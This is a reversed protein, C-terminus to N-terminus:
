KVVETLVSGISGSPMQISLMASVTPAIDTMYVERYTKGSSINWGFFILPIHTDYPYWTAHEAGSWDVDQYQPKLMFQIDGNRTRFYGKAYMEKIKAPLVLKDFQLYDFAHMVEPKALLFNLVSIKIAEKNLKLSDLLPYDFYVQYNYIKKVISDAKFQQKLMKNMEPIMLKANLNGGPLKNEQMFGPVNSSGHDATLFLLYNGKGVQADLMNLFKEIEKDLRLYCDEVEMSNPGFRHAIYDTSSLSICLMDTEPTKGLKENKILASAFDLTFNNGFPNVRFSYYNKGIANKYSHPFTRTTELPLTKEFLKDDVTSQIYSEAPYLLNWNNSMYKDPYRRANFDKVWNPLNNMYYTSTIWNGSADEFWYAANANHGAPFIGGRDKMAIGFTRSRFNTAMRLEDAITTVLMNKPSMRGESSTTGVSKVSDDKSCYMLKGTNNEIWDNGVIGTIAPVSGSYISTHSPATVTPVFPIFTNQFNYGQQMLRRFGGKGYRNYYRYLYDWRMQDIVLGVVLKPRSISTSNELPKNKQQSHISFSITILLLLILWTKNRM